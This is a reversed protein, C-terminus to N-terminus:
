LARLPLPKVAAALNRIDQPTLSIKKLDLAAIDAAVPSRLADWRRAGTEPWWLADAYSEVWAWSETGALAQRGAAWFNRPLMELHLLGRVFYARGVRAPFAGLWDAGHREWLRGIR